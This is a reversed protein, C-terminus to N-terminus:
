MGTATKTEPMPNILKVVYINEVTFRMKSRVFKPNDGHVSNSDM